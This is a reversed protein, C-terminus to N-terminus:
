VWEALITIEPAPAYEPCWASGLTYGWTIGYTEFVVEGPLWPLGSLLNVHVTAVGAHVHKHVHIGPFDYTYERYTCYEAGGVTTEFYLTGFPYELEDLLTVAIVVPYTQMAKSKFTVSVNIYECHKYEAKDTTVEVWRTLYDFHFWLWDRTVNCAIDVSALVTFEQCLWVQGEPWPIRFSVHAVGYEDTTASLVVLIGGQPDRVEFTVDKNQEPWENYTVNAFLHILKQPWFMDSTANIGQGGYPSPYQTYVDISRGLTQSIIKYTGDQEPDFPVPEALTDGGKVAYLDLACTLFPTPPFVDQFIAKFHITAVVGSGSPFPAHWTGNEDPVLLIGVNVYDPEIVQFYYVGGNPSAGFPEFFTGNKIELAELLTGNFSLRFELGVLEWGQALNNIVIDIDFEENLAYATYTAPDVSLYAKLAPLAYDVRFYGDEVTHTIPDAYIDGPKSVYIELATELYGETKTPEKEVQLTITAVTHKGDPPCTTTTINFPAYGDAVAQGMDLFTVAYWVEDASVVQKLKNINGQYATPVLDSFLEETMSVGSLLTPDWRMKFELGALGTMNAITVNVQITSGAPNFVTDTVISAPDVFVKAGNTAYVPFVATLSLVFMVAFAIALSRKSQIRM